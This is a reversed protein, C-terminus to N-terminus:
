HGVTHRWTRVVVGDAVVRVMVARGPRATVDCSLTAVTGQPLQVSPCPQRDVELWAPRQPAHVNLLVRVDLHHRGPRLVAALGDRATTAVAPIVVAVNAFPRAHVAPPLPAPVEAAFM